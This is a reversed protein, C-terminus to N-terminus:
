HFTPNRWHSSLTVMRPNGSCFICSHWGCGLSLNALKELNNDVETYPKRNMKSMNNTSQPNPELDKIALLNNLKNDHKINHTNHRGQINALNGNNIESSISHDSWCSHYVFTQLSASKNRNPHSLLSIYCSWKKHLRRKLDNMRKNILFFICMLRTEKHVISIIWASKQALIWHM